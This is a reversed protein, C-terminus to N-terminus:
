RRRFIGLAALGMIALLAGAAPVDRPESPEATAVAARVVLTGRMGEHYKCLFAHEGPESPAALTRTEGPRVVDTDISGDALTFTHVIETANNVFTFTAGADLELRAPYFRTDYGNGVGISAPPIAVTLTGVATEHYKDHFGYVGPTEPARIDAVHVVGASATDVEASVEPADDLTLSYRGHGNGFVMLQVVGGPKITIDSPVFRLAGGGADVHVMADDQPVEQALTSGALHVLALAIVVICPRLM